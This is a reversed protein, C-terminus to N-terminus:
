NPTTVPLYYNSSPGGQIVPSTEGTQFDIGTVDFEDFNDYDGIVYGTATNQNDRIFLGAVSVPGSMSEAWWARHHDQQTSANSSILQTENLDSTASHFFGYGGSNATQCNQLSVHQSSEVDFGNQHSDTAQDNLFSVYTAGDTTQFGNNGSSTLTVGEIDVNAAHNYIMVGDDATQDCSVDTVHVQQSNAIDICFKNGNYGALSGAGTVQAHSISVDTSQRSEIEPDQTVAIASYATNEITVNSFSANCAGATAIGRAHSTRITIQDAAFGCNPNDKQINTVALGDDGTNETSLNVVVGTGVNEFHMGDASTNRITTLGIFSLNTSDTNWIGSGTSGIITTNLFTVNKAQEVLLANNAAQQRPLPLSSAALYTITLNEFNAGKSAILWVCQGANPTATDCAFSAAPDMRVKGSFGRFELGAQNPHPNHLVYTGAPFYLSAGSHHAIYNQLFPSDDTVGDGRAGATHMNVEVPQTYRTSSTKATTQCPSSSIVSAVVLILGFARFASAITTVQAM